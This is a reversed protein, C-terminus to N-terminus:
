HQPIGLFARQRAAPCAQHSWPRRNELAPVGRAHQALLTLILAMERGAVAKVAVDAVSHGLVLGPCTPYHLPRLRQNIRESHSRLIGVAWM